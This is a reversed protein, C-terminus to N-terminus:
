FLASGSAKEYICKQFVLCFSKVLCIPMFTGERSLRVLISLRSVKKMSKRLNTARPSVLCQTLMTYESDTIFKKIFFLKPEQDILVDLATKYITKRHM